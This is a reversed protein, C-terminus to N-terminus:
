LGVQDAAYNAQDSTFLEYTVLWDILGSRSYGQYHMMDKARLKAQENWDAGCHDAAFTAEDETFGEYEYLEQILGQYSPHSSRIIQMAQKCANALQTSAEVTYDRTELVKGCVTCLRSEVGPKIEGYTSLTVDQTVQWDGPTHETIPLEETVAQGCRNCTGSRSGKETCSAEKDTVWVTVDHGLPDGQTEGCRGCTKPATCTADEWEHGLAEGETVGCRSCVKPETCTADDWEHGLPEGQIRGCIRCTEPETCTAPQWDHYLFYYGCFAAVAIALVGILIPPLPKKPKQASGSSDSSGSGDSTSEEDSNSSTPTVGVDSPSGVFKVLGVGDPGEIPAADEASSGLTEKTM